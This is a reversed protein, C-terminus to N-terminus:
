DVLFILVFSSDTSTVFKNELLQCFLTSPIAFLEWSFMETWALCVRPYETVSLMKPMKTSNQMSKSLYKLLMFLYYQLKLLDQRLMPLTVKPCYFLIVNSHFYKFLCTVVMNLTSYENWKKQIKHQPKLVSNWSM